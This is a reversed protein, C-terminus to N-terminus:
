SAIMHREGTISHFRIYALRERAIADRRNGRWGAGGINVAIDPLLPTFFTGRDTGCWRPAITVLTVSPAINSEQDAARCLPAGPSLAARNGLEQPRRDIGTQLFPIPTTGEGRAIHRTLHVRGTPPIWPMRLVRREVRWSLCYRAVLAVKRTGLSTAGSTSQLSDIM